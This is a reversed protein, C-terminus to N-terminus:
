KLNNYTANSISKVAFAIDFLKKPNEELLNGVVIIDAGARCVAEAMEPTRIGGGVILPLGGEKKVATVIDLPIPNLAGSGADMYTIAQGLMRGALATSVALDVKHSPIPITNSVYAVSTIKGGDILLYSTPMIEIGADRLEFAATVHQGILYEPNRGSILSLLLISDAYKSIQNHNGPFDSGTYGFM